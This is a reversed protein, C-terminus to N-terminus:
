DLFVTDDNVQNNDSIKVISKSSPKIKFEVVEYDSTINVSSVYGSDYHLHEGDWVWEENFKPYQSSKYYVVSPKVTTLYAKRGVHDIKDSFGEYKGIFEEYRDPMVEKLHTIFEPVIERQYGVIEGGMMAQPKFTCIKYILDVTFKDYDIYSMSSSWSVRMVEIRGEENEKINIYPYPFVVVGDILGLKRSPSKLKSYQEHSTWKSKFTHYKQARSTFGKVDSVSGFKCGGSMSRVALCTDNQFYSCSNHKDCSIISAELPTERGGFISKGGYLGVNIIERGM